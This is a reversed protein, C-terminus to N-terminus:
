RDTLDGYGTTIRQSADNDNGGRDDADLSLAHGFAHKELVRVVYGSLTRDDHAALRMLANELTESIRIAPLARVRKETPVARSLRFGGEGSPNSM